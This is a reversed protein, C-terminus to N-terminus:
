FSLGLGMYYGQGDVGEFTNTKVGAEGYYKGVTYRSGLQFETSKTDSYDRHFIEGNISVADTVDVDAKLGVRWDKDTEKLETQAYGTVQFNSEEFKVAGGIWTADVKGIGNDYDGSTYSFSPGFSVNQGLDLGFWNVHADFREGDVNVNGSNEEFGLLMDYQFDGRDGDIIIQRTIVDTGNIEEDAYQLGVRTTDDLALAAGSSLTMIAASALLIKKMSQEKEHLLNSFSPPTQMKFFSIKFMDFPINNNPLV